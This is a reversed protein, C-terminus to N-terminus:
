ESRLAHVPNDMTARLSQGAIALFALILAFAGALAFMWWSIAVRYAFTELWRSM